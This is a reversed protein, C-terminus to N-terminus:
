AGGGNKAAAGAVAASSSPLTLGKSQVRERAAAKRAELAAPAWIQFKPGMGVFAVVDSVGCFEIYDAPLIIRGEGDFPLQISEAFIATSLDNQDESFLDFRDLRAGLEAMFEMPFGELAEHTYSKFLVVGQYGDDSLAARFSSPVSVRGKKDIKNIYTSLFLAM